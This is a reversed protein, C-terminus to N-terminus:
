QNVAKKKVSDICIFSDKFKGDYYIDKVDKQVLNTDELYEGLYKNLKATFDTGRKSGFKYHESLVKLVSIYMLWMGSYLISKKHSDAKLIVDKQSTENKGLTYLNFGLEELLMLKIDEITVYDETVSDSLWDLRQKFKKLQECDFDFGDYLVNLTLIIYDNAVKNIIDEALDKKFDFVVKSIKEKLQGETFNYVAPKKRQEKAFRRREARNMGMEGGSKVLRKAKPYPRM